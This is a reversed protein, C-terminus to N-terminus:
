DKFGVPEPGSQLTPLAIPVSSSPRLALPRAAKEAVAARRAAWMGYAVGGGIAIPALVGLLLNSAGVLKLGSLFLITALAPRIVYDPARSSFRAGLFVGPVSGIIIAVTLGLKLDGFLFHGLAASAVLPVAQVLDTGVLESMQLRPYLLLLMVIILSGSGVSTLGVVLGGLIGIILTPVRKLEFPRSQARGSVLIPRLLVGAVVSLLAIGLALKIHSQMAAAADVRRLLYVGFFSSPISGIMLWTVLGRNVTGRRWHVAGGIPKMVMAAVVDSSVAALPQIKFLLILIPTMLAGGGMGTLGVVFGVFLGCAIVLPDFM